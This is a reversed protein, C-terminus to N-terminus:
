LARRLNIMLIAFEEPTIVNNELAHRLLADVKENAMDRTCFLENYFPDQDTSVMLYGDSTVIGGTIRPNSLAEGSIWGLLAATRPHIGPIKRCIREGPGM